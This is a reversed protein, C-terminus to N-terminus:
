EQVLYKLGVDVHPNQFPLLHPLAKYLGNLLLELLVKPADVRWKISM